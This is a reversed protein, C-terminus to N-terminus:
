LSVSVCFYRFGHYFRPKRLLYFSSSVPSSGAGGFHKENKRSPKGPLISIM